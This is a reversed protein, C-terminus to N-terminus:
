RARPSVIAAASCHAMTKAALGASRESQYWSAQDFVMEGGSAIIWPNFSFLYDPLPEGNSLSINTFWSFVESHWDRHKELNVPPYKDDEHVTVSSGNLEFTIPKLEVSWGASRAKPVVTEVGALVNALWTGNSDNM